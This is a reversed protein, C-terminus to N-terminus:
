EPERRSPRSPKRGEGGPECAEPNAVVLWGAATVAPIALYWITSGTLAEGTLGLAAGAALCLLLWLLRRFAGHPPRTM